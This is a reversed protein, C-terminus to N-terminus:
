RSVPVTNDQPKEGTGPSGPPLRMEATPDGAAMLGVLFVSKYHCNIYNICKIQLANKM